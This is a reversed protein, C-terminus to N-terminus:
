QKAARKGPAELNNIREQLKELAVKTQQQVRAQAVATENIELSLQKYCVRQEDEIVDAREGFGGALTSLETTVERNQAELQARMAELEGRLEAQLANTHKQQAQLEVRRAAADAQLQARLSSLEASQTEIVARLAEQEAQQSNAKTQLEALQSNTSAIAADHQGLVEGADGLAHHVASNFNVQEWIFWRSLIKLRAKIWLEARAATGRRNSFIPPLRDWARATTTLHANLRALAESTRVQPAPSIAPTATGDGNRVVKAPPAPLSEAPQSIVRQRIERLVSEVEEDIM